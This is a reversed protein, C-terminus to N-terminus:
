GRSTGATSRFACNAARDRDFLNSTYSFSLHPAEPRLLAGSLACPRASPRGSDSRAYGLGLRGVLPQPDGVHLGKSARRPAFWRTWGPSDFRASFAHTRDRGPRTSASPDDRRVAIPRGSKFRPFRASAWMEREALPSGGRDDGPGAITLRRQSRWRARCAAADPRGSTRERRPGRRYGVVLRRPLPAQRAHVRYPTTGVRATRGIRRRPTGFTGGPSRGGPSSSIWPDECRGSRNLESM